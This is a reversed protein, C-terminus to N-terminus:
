KCTNEVPKAMQIREAHLNRVKRKM